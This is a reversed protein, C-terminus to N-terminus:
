LEDTEICYRRIQQEMQGNYDLFTIDFKHNNSCIFHAKCQRTGHIPMRIIEKLYIDDSNCKDCRFYQTQRRNCSLVCGM